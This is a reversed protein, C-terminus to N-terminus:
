RQVFPTAGYLQMELSQGTISDTVNYGQLELPKGYNQNSTRTGSRPIAVGLGYSSNRNPLMLLTYAFNVFDPYLYVFVSLQRRMLESWYEVYSYVRNSLRDIATDTAVKYHTPDTTGAMLGKAKMKTEIFPLSLWVTAWTVLPVCFNNIFEQYNPSFSSTLGTQAYLIVQETLVNLFNSGLREQLYMNQAMQINPIIDQLQINPDLSTLSKLMPESLFNALHIAM